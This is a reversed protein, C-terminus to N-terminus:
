FTHFFLFFACADTQTLEAYKGTHPRHKKEHGGDRCLQKTIETKIHTLLPLNNVNRRGREIVTLLEQHIDTRQAQTPSSLPIKHQKYDSKWINREIQTEPCYALEWNKVIIIFQSQNLLQFALIAPM